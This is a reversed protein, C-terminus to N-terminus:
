LEFPVSANSLPDYYGIKHISQEESKIVSKTMNLGRDRDSPIM